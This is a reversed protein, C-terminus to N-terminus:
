EHQKKMTRGVGNGCKDCVTWSSQEIMQGKRAWYLMQRAQQNGCKDCTVFVGEKLGEWEAPKQKPQPHIIQGLRFFDFILQLGAWQPPADQWWSLHLKNFGQEITLSTTTGDLGLVSEPLLQITQTKLDQLFALAQDRDIPHRRVDRTSGYGEYEREDIVVYFNNGGKAYEEVLACSKKGNFSPAIEVKLIENM